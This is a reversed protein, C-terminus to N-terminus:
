HGGQLGSNPSLSAGLFTSHAPHQHGHVAGPSGLAEHEDEASGVPLVSSSLLVTGAWDMEVGTEPLSPNACAAQSPRPFSVRCLLPFDYGARDSQPSM